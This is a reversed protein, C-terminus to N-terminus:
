IMVNNFQAVYGLRNFARRVALTMKVPKALKSRYHLIYYKGNFWRVLIQHHAPDDYIAVIGVKNKGRYYVTEVKAAGFNRGAIAYLQCGVIQKVTLKRDEYSM